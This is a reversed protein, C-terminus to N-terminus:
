VISDLVISDYCPFSFRHNYWNFSKDLWFCLHLLWHVNPRCLKFHSSSPKWNFKKERGRCLKKLQFCWRSHRHSTFIQLNLPNERNAKPISFMKFRSSLRSANERPCKLLQNFCMSQHSPQDHKSNGCVFCLCQSHFKFCVFKIM